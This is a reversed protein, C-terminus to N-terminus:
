EVRFRLGKVRLGSDEVRRCSSKVRFGLGQVWVWSGRVGFELVRFRFDLRKLRYGFGM